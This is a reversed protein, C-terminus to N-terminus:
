WSCLSYAYLFLSEGIIPHMLESSLGQPDLCLVEHLRSFKEPQQFGPGKMNAAMSKNVETLLDDLSYLRVRKQILDVLTSFWIGGKDKREYAKHNPMTSYALLFNADEPVKMMDILDGGRPLTKKVKSSKPVLVTKTIELGRCADFLFAKPITAINKANKPLLPEVITEWVMVKTGDQMYLM